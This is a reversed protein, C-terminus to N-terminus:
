EWCDTSKRMEVSSVQRGGTSDQLM